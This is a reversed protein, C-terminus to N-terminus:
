KLLKWLTDRMAGQVSDLWQEVQGRAKQAKSFPVREGENSFM